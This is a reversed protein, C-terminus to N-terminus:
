PASTAHGIQQKNGKRSTPRVLREVAERVKESKQSEVVELDTRMQVVLNRFTGRHPDEIDSLDPKDIYLQKKKEVEEIFNALTLVVDSKAILAVSRSLNKMKKLEEDSVAYEGEHDDDVESFYDLLEYYRKLKEKFVETKYEKEAEYEVQFHLTVAVSVVVMVVAVVAALIEITLNSVDASFMVHLLVASTVVVAASLAIITFQKRAKAKIQAIQEKM